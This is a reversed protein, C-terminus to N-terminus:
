LEDLTIRKSPDNELMRQIMEKFNESLLEQNSDIQDKSHGLNRQM